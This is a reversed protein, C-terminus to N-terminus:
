WFNLLNESIQLFLFFIRIQSLKHLITYTRRCIQLLVNAHKNALVFHVAYPERKEQPVRM